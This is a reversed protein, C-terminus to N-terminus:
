LVSSLLNRTFLLINRLSLLGIRYAVEGLASLINAKLLYNDIRYEMISWAINLEEKAVELIIVQNEDMGGKIMFLFM